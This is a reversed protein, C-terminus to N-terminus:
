DKYETQIQEELEIALKNIKKKFKADTLGEDNRITKPYLKPLGTAPDKGYIQVRAVLVGKKNTSFKIYAM